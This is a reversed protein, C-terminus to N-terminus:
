ALALPAAKSQCMAPRVQQQWGQLDLKARGRAVLLGLHEDAHLVLLAAVAGAPPSKPMTNDALCCPHAASGDSLGGDGKGEHCNTHLPHAGLPRM